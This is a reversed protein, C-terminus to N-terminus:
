EAATKSVSSMKECVTVDSSESQLQQLPRQDEAEDRERKEEAGKQSCVHRLMARRSRIFAMGHTRMHSKLAWEHEFEKYCVNCELRSSDVEEGETYAPVQSLPSPQLLGEHFVEPKGPPLPLEMRAPLDTPLAELIINHQTIYTHPQKVRHVMFLHKSLSSVASFCLGCELCQVSDEMSHEGIHGQFDERSPCSFKCKACVYEQQDDEAVRLRKVSDTSHTSPTSQESDTTSRRRFTPSTPDQVESSSLAESQSVMTDAVPKALNHRRVLHKKLNPRSLMMTKGKKQCLQCALVTKQARHETFRHTALQDASTYTLGCLHCTHYLQTDPEAMALAPTATVLEEADESHSSDDEEKIQSVSSSNGSLPLGPSKQVERGSSVPGSSGPTPPASSVASKPFHGTSATRDSQPNVLKHKFTVQKGMESESLLSMQKHGVIKGKKTFIVLTNPQSVNRPTDCQKETRKEPSVSCPSKEATDQIVQGSVVSCVSKENGTPCTSGCPDCSILPGPINSCNEKQSGEDTLLAGVGSSSPKMTELREMNGSATVHTPNEALRHVSHDLAAPHVLNKGPELEMQEGSETGAKGSNVVADVDEPRSSTVPQPNGAGAATQECSECETVCREKHETFRDVSSFDFRQCYPCTRFKGCVQHDSKLLHRQLELITPFVHGCSRCFYAKQNADLVPVQIDMSQKNVLLTFREPTDVVADVVKKVVHWMIHPLASEANLLSSPCMLCHYKAYAKRGRDSGSSAGHNSLVHIRLLSLKVFGQQCISCTFKYAAHRQNLHRLLDSLSVSFFDKCFLCAFAFRAMTKASHVHKEEHARGEPPDEEMCGEAGSLSVIEAQQQRPKHAQLFHNDLAAKTNCVQKCQLCRFRKNGPHTLYIHDELTEVTPFWENCQFCRLAVCRNFHMCTAYMHQYLSQQNVFRLGCEPCVYPPHARFVHFKADHLRLHARLACASPLPMRCHECIHEFACFEMASFHHALKSADSFAEHCETCSAPRNRNMNLPDMFQTKTSPLLEMSLSSVSMTYSKLSLVQGGSATSTTHKRLHALFTCKNFFVLAAKCVMCAYRIVMSMRKVHATYGVLTSCMIGCEVCRYVNNVSSLRGPRPRPELSSVLSKGQILAAMDGASLKAETSVQDVRIHQGSGLTSTESVASPSTTHPIHHSTIGAGAPSPVPKSVVQVSPVRSTVVVVQGVSTHEPPKIRVIASASKQTSTPSAQPITQLSKAQLSGSSVSTLTVPQPTPAVSVVSGKCVAATHGSQISSVQGGLSQGAQTTGGHASTGTKQGAGHRQMINQVTVPMSPSSSAASSSYSLKCSEANGSSTSISTTSVAEQIDPSGALTHAVQESSGCPMSVAGTQGFVLGPKPKVKTKQTEAEKHVKINKSSVSCTSEATGSTQVLSSISQSTAPHPRHTTLETGRIRNGVLKPPITLFVNKRAINQSQTIGKKATLNSPLILPKCLASYLTSSSPQSPLSEARLQTTTSPVEASNRNEQFSINSAFTSADNCTVEIVQKKSPVSKGGQREEETELESYPRKRTSSKSAMNLCSDPNDDIDMNEAPSPIAIPRTESGSDEPELKVVLSGSGECNKKQQSTSSCSGRKQRANHDEQKGTTETLLESRTINAESRGATGESTGTSLASAREEDHLIPTRCGAGREEAGPSASQQVPTSPSSVPTSPSGVPPSPLVDAETDTRKESVTVESSSEPPKSASLVDRTQQETVSNDVFREDSSVSQYESQERTGSTEGGKDHKINDCFFTGDDKVSFVNTIVLDPMLDEEALTIVDEGGDDDDDDDNFSTEAERNGTVVADNDTEKPASVATDYPRSESAIAMGQSEINDCESSCITGEAGSNADESHLTASKEKAPDNQFHESVVSHIHIHDLTSESAEIRNDTTVSEDTQEEIEGTVTQVCVTGELHASSPAKLSPQQTESSDPTESESQTVLKTVSTRSDQESGPTTMRSPIMHEVSHVNVPSINKLSSSVSITTSIDAASTLTRVRVDTEMESEASFCDM